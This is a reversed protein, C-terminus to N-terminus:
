KKTLNDPMVNLSSMKGRSVTGETEMIEYYEKMKIKANESINIIDPSLPEGYMNYSLNKNQHEILYGTHCLLGRWRLIEFSIDTNRDGQVDHLKLKENLDKSIAVIDDLSRAVDKWMKEKDVGKSTLM